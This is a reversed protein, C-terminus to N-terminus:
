RLDGKTCRTDVEVLACRTCDGVYSDLLAVGYNVQVCRACHLAWVFPLQSHFGM